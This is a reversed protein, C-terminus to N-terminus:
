KGGTIAAPEEAGKEELAPPDDEQQFPVYDEAMPLGAEALAATEEPSTLAQLLREPDNQVMARVDAPLMAFQEQADTVRELAEHFSTVESFDGYMPERPNLHEIVGTHMHRKMIKNIDCDDAFSQKTLSLEGVPTQCNPNREFSKLPKQREM